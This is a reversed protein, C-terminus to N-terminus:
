QQQWTVGPQGGSAAPPYEKNPQFSLGNITNIIDDVNLGDKIIWTQDKAVKKLLAERDIIKGDPGRTGAIALLDSKYTNTKQKATKENINNQHLWQSYGMNQSQAAQSLKEGQMQLGIKSMELSFKQHDMTPQGEVSKFMPALDKYLPMDDFIGGTNKPWFGTAGAVGSISNLLAAQQAATIQGMGAVNKGAQALGVNAGFMKEADYGMGTLAARADAAQKAIETQSEKSKAGGYSAKAGMITDILNQAKPDMYKGTVAAQQLPLTQDFQYRNQGANLEGSFMNYLMQLDGNRKSMAQQQLQPVLKLPELQAKQNIQGLQSSTYSSNTLGRDNMTELTQKSADAADSKALQMAALYTPDNAYDYSFPTNLQQNLKDLTSGAMNFLSDYGFNGYDGPATAAPTKAKQDAAVTGAIAGMAGAIGGPMNMTPTGGTGFETGTGGGGPKGKKPYKSLYDAANYVM